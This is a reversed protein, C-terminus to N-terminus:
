HAYNFFELTGILQEEAALSHLSGMFIVLSAGYANFGVGGVESSMIIGDLQGQNLEDVIATRNETVRKNGYMDKGCIIKVKLKM